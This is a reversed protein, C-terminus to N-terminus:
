PRHFKKTRRSKMADNLLTLFEEVGFCAVNGFMDGRAKGVQKLKCAYAHIRRVKAIHRDSGVVIGYLGLMSANTIGGLIHKSSTTNEVEVAILCRPNRNAYIGGHNQEYITAGLRDLVPHRFDRITGADKRRNQFSLNFPGVAIDLRPIYSGNDRFTDTAGKRISWERIVNERGFRAILAEHIVAEPGDKRMIGWKDIM